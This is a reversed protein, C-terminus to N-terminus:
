SSRYLNEKVLEMDVNSEEAGHFDDVLAKLGNSSDDAGVSPYTKDFDNEEIVQKFENSKRSDTTPGNIFLINM